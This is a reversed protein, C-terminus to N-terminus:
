DDPEYHYFDGQIDYIDEFNLVTDTIQLTQSAPSIKSVMGTLKRYEGNSFYIVTIIDNLSIQHLKGDIDSKREDPLDIKEVIIKEKQQLAERFGRLADFPTFQKAREARNEFSDYM